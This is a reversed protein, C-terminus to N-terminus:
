ADSCVSRSTKIDIVVSRGGAALGTLSDLLKFRRSPDAECWGLQPDDNAAFIENWRSALGAM